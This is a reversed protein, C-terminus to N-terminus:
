RLVNRPGRPFFFYKGKRLILRAVYCFASCVVLRLDSCTFQTESTVKRDEAHLYFFHSVFMFLHKCIFLVSDFVRFSLRWTQAYVILLFYIYINRHLNLFCYIYIFLILIYALIFLMPSLFDLFINCYFSPVRSPRASMRYLILNCWGRIHHSAIQTHPLNEPVCFKRFERLVFVSM